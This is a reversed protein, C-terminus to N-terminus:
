AGNGVVAEDCENNQSIKKGKRKRTKMRWRTKRDIGLKEADCQRMQIIKRRENEKDKFIQVIGTKIPEEDINNAEKGIHIILDAHVHKRTLIGVDGDFKSEKHDCYQSITKSLPKFYQLGQKIEGTEYDIFPEHVITQPDKSYPSLPKVTKKKNRVMQFGVLFFNFPKIQQNWDKGKNLTDFRDWLHATSVTMKAIAYFNSYKQELALPSVLSYHLKLLDRWIEAQWNEKNNPFPNTLHGLGHLKFDILEFPECENRYLVYRKSSIGYFWVDEKEAKLLPITVTYPNLPKFHDIIAEAHEPPVFISDTDMYVHNVGISLLKTEAMALFLRAGSTIMVGLLPHFFVGPREHHNKKTSFQDLGYVEVESKKEDPNLEIFIGYSMANVLIKMAQQRSHLHMWEPSDTSLSKIREKIKQREEVLVQILNNKRPDLPIGLIESSKLDKQIGKSVFRVAELIQPAKGTLLKSAIVDPLASWMPTDSKLYNIGVNFSKNDGKYDMRVPLIDNNPQIIVLGNFNNWLISDRLMKSNVTELLQRVEDTADVTEVRDAIIFNWIGLLMTITLYMSTFDLVTVKTPVKRMRCETRGGYYASM